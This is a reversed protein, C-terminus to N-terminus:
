NVTQSRSLLVIAAVRKKETKELSSVRLRSSVLYVCFLFVPLCLSLFILCPQMMVYRNAIFPPKHHYRCMYRQSVEKM